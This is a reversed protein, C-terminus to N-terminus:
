VWNKLVPRSPRQWIYGFLRSPEWVQVTDMSGKPQELYPSRTTAAIEKHSITFSSKRLISRSLLTKLQRELSWIMMSWPTQFACQTYCQFSTALWFSVMHMRLIPTLCQNSRRKISISLSEGLRIKQLRWNTHIMRKYRRKSRNCPIKLPALASIVTAKLNSRYGVPPELTACKLPM